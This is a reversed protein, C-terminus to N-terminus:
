SSLVTKIAFLKPPNLITSTESIDFGILNDSTEFQSPIAKFTANFLSSLMAKTALLSFPNYSM